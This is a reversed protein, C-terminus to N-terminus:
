KKSLEKITEAYREALTKTGTQKAPEPSTLHDTIYKQLKVIEADKKGMESEWTAKDSDYTGKLSALQTELENIRETEDAM